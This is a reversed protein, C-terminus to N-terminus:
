ASRSLINGRAFVKVAVLLLMVDLLLLVLATGLLLEIGIVLVGFLQAVLVGTLPLILVLSVQEAARPDTSRSSVILAFSVGLLSVLPAVLFVVLLPLVGFVLELVRDSVVLQSAVAAYFAYGIVTALVGPLLTGLAKGALLEGTRLPTALLPELSRDRKEGVVSYATLSVPVTLPVLMFLTLFQMALTGQLQERVTGGPFILEGLPPQGEATLSAEPSIAATWLGGLSLLVLVMPLLLTLAAMRRYRYVDAWEKRIITWVRGWDWSGVIDPM